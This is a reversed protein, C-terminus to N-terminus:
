SIVKRFPAFTSTRFTTLSFSSQDALARKRSLSPFGILPRLIVVVCGVLGSLLHTPRPWRSNTLFTPCVVPTLRVRVSPCLRLAFVGRSIAGHPDRLPCQSRHLPAAM